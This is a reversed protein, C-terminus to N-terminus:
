VGVAEALNWLPDNAACLNLLSFLVNWSRKMLRRASKLSGLTRHGNPSLILVAMMCTKGLFKFASSPALVDLRTRTTAIATSARTMENSTADQAPPVAQAASFV